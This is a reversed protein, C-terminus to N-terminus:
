LDISEVKSFEAIQHCVRLSSLLEATKWAPNVTCRYSRVADRSRQWRSDRNEEGVEM